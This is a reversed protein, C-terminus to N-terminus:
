SQLFALFAKYGDDAEVCMNGQTNGSDKAEKHEKQKQVINDVGSENNSMRVSTKSDGNEELSHTVNGYQDPIITLFRGVEEDFNQSLTDHLVTELTKGDVKNKNQSNAKDDTNEGVKDDMQVVQMQHHGGSKQLAESTSQETSNPKSFRKMVSSVSHISSGFHSLMNSLYRPRIYVVNNWFGQLPVLTSASLILGYNNYGKGSSLM